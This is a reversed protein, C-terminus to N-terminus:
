EGVPILLLAELAKDSLDVLIPLGCERCVPQFDWGGFESEAWIPTLEGEHAAGGDICDDHYLHADQDSWGAVEVGFYTAM